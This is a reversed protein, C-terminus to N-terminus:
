RTPDWFSLTWAGDLGLRDDLLRAYMKELSLMLISGGGLSHLMLETRPLTESVDKHCCCSTAVPPCGRFWGRGTCLKLQGGVQGTNSGKSVPRKFEMKGQRCKGSSVRLRFRCTVDDRPWKRRVVNVRDWRLSSSSCLSFIHFNDVSYWKHHLTM